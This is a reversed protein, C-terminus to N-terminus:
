ILGLRRARLTAETRNRVALKTFINNTHKAVTGTAIILQQAIEPNSHGQAVLKLIQMERKSLPDILPQTTMGTPLFAAQVRGIFQNEVDKRALLRLLPALDTALEVFLRLYGGPEALEVATHMAALALDPAQVRQHACAQLLQIEILSEWWGNARAETELDTLFVVLKQPDQHLLWRAYVLQATHYQWRTV